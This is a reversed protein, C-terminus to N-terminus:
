WSGSAGGGGSSGGGGSDSDGSDSSDSGSSWAGSGSSWGATIDLLWSCDWRRREALVKLVPFLVAYAILAIWGGAEGIVTRPFVYWIPLLLAYVVWGISGALVGFLMICCLMVFPIAAITLHDSSGHWNPSNPGSLPDVSRNAAPAPLGGKGLVHMVAQVGAQIGGALDGTKFRPAMVDRIIRGALLDTLRGELGYGVEIRMRRDKLAVVMLVGNDKGKEGLKWSEFVRVAFDDISDGDLSPITLVVIQNGTQKRFDRLATTLSRQADGALVGATDNVPGKHRPVDLAYAPSTALLLAIIVKQVCTWM